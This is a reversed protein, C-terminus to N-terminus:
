SKRRLYPFLAELQAGSLAHLTAINKQYISEPDPFNEIARGVSAERLLHLMPYPARNTWNGVDDDDTDVFHYHPHFSAVQLVGTVHLAGLMADVVDLLAVYEDFVAFSDPLIILTTDIEQAPTQLLLTIEDSLVLTAEDANRAHSVVMRLQKKAVVAKAFPCLNLGIVVEDLWRQTHELITRDSHM